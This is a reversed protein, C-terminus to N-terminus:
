KAIIESIITRALELADARAMGPAMRPDYLTRVLIRDSWSLQQIAGANAFISPWPPNTDNPLGLSQTMEELVCHATREPTRGKNVVIVAKQLTNGSDDPWILFYCGGQAALKQLIGGPVDALEPNALQLPPVFNITFNAPWRSNRADQTKLGTLEALTNLHRQVYEVHRESVPAAELRRSVRGGAMPTVIEDFERVVVRLPRTWKRVSTFANVGKFESGFVITDFYRVLQETDPREPEGQLDSGAAPAARPCAAALVFFALLLAGTKRM